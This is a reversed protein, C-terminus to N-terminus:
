RQGSRPFDVPRGARLRRLPRTSTTGRCTAPRKGEEISKLTRIAAIIDRAKSKEGSAIAASQAQGPEPPAAAPGASAQASPFRIETGVRRASHRAATQLGPPIPTASSSEDSLSDFLTPRNRSAKLRAVHSQPRVVNGRRPSAGHQWGSSVRLAFSGGNGEPGNGTSRQRDPEPRQEPRVQALMEKWAEHSTKLERAYLELTPLLKHSKRLQERLQPREQLMEHIITKYQM